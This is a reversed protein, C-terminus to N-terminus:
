EQDVAYTHGLRTLDEWRADQEVVIRGDPTLVRQDEITRTGFDFPEDKVFAVLPAIWDEMLHREKETPGHM